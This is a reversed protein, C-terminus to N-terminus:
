VLEAPLLPHPDEVPRAEFGVEPVVLGLQQHLWRSVMARHCWVGTNPREYCCLVPVRGNALAEIQRVVEGADLKGLIEAYLHDYETPTTTNFWPGPALAKFLRYGAPMGRPVGRSIGIRIHDEPLPTFWSGTKIRDETM